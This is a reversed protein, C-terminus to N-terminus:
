RGHLAADRIIPFNAGRGLLFIEIQKPTKEGGLISGLNRAWDDLVCVAEVFTQADATFSTDADTWVIAVRAPLSDRLDYLCDNLADWNHRFHPPLRLPDGIASFFTEDSIIHAGSLVRTEFGLGVLKELLSQLSAQM